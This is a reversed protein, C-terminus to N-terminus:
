RVPGLVGLVDILPRLWPGVLPIPLGLAKVFVASCFAVLGVMGVLAKTEFRFEQSAAAGMLILVFLAVVLGLTHVLLGYAVIAGVILFLPKWALQAVPEGKAFVSRALSVLGIVILLVALVRPFYGPGMRGVTGFKYDLALWLAGGGLGVYILGTWFDRPSSIWNPM